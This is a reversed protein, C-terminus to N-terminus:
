CCEWVRDGRVMAEHRLFAAVRGFPFAGLVRLGRPTHGLARLELRRVARRQRRDEIGNVGVGSHGALRRVRPADLRRHVPSTEPRHPLVRAEAGGLLRVRPIAVEELLSLRAERDREIQWRLHAVVRVVRADGTLHPLDADRDARELVERAEEFADRHAFHRCRHRDVRRGRDEERHVGRDGLALAHRGVTDGSRRLVVDQLLVDRPPGVDKRRPRRHPERGVEDRVARLLVRAPVRDRDAAVVDTLGARVRHLLEREREGVSDRVDVRRDLAPQVDIPERGLEGEEERRSTGRRV